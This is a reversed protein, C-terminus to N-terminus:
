NEVGALDLSHPAMRCHAPRTPAQSKREARERGQELEPTLTALQPLIVWFSIDVMHGWVCVMEPSQWLSLTPFPDEIIKSRQKLISTCYLHCSKRINTLIQAVERSWAININHLCSQLLWSVVQFNWGPVSSLKGKKLTKFLFCSVFYNEKM